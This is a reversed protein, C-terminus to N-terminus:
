FHYIISALLNHQYVDTDTAESEITGARFTYAVDFIWPGWAIGSGVSCGFFHDTGGDGPEPDYFLGGRVPIVLRPRIWLYEAGLRVSTTDDGKGDLVAQGKGAPAGNEVLLVDDQNSEELRLDSWHTRSVDLSITLADSLRASLGLGYSLPLKFDLTERFDLGTTVTETGDPETDDQLQITLSSPHQREAKGTFASRFVGGLQFIPNITWLFGATINFGSFDVEERIHGISTFPVISNGPVVRGDGRVDVDQAYGNGFIDPWINFAVGVSLTPTLQVAVAPSITFLAGRQRSRVQQIGDIDNFRSVVDTAGRLEFLRQYNISVVINRRLLQFPYAISLYNLEFSDLALDEVVTDPVSVDQREFRAFYSGVISFEPRELQVLGGPNHSAATADDAVGIFAIAKGQARAGSGVPSPSTAFNLSDPLRIGFTLDQAALSAPLTACLVALGLLFRTARM